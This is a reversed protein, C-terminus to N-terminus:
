EQETIPITLDAVSARSLIFIADAGGASAYRGGGPAVGGLLLNRRAAAGDFDVAITVLPERLGCRVYDEPTAAVTEVGVAETRTLAAFLKKVHELSVRRLGGGASSDLVWPMHAADRRVAVAAGERPHVSIRRVAAPDLEQVMKSRLDALAGCDAFVTKPVVVGPRAGATTTVSVRVADEAPIVDPVDSRRLRLVRDAMAAAAVPDAPAAVPAELRWLDNAGQALVYVLAGAEFSIAKLREGEGLPFFRTDRFSAGGARCLDALAVDVTVVATGNRVLAYVLNTGARAGFVIQEAAGTATRVTVAQGADVGLGYPSLESPAIVGDAASAVPAAASPLVYGVIRAGVLGDALASVAGIEAPGGVEAPSVMSWGARNRVLKVFPVGPARLDIGSIEERSCSLLTRRRFGDADSPVARVAEVPVTFVNRLGEARAYVERGSATEAGFSVRAASGGAHLRLQLTGGSSLGFDAFDERLDALETETRMDGVAVVTALDVLRAVAAADAPAVYPTKMQWEGEADRVLSIGNTAGKEFVEVADVADPAFTCLTNRTVATAIHRDRESLVVLAASLFVIGLLFFVTFRLNNM